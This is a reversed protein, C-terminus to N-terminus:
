PVKKYFNEFTIEAFDFVIYVFLIMSIYEFPEQVNLYMNNIMPQVVFLILASLGIWALSFRLCIIGQFNYKMDKYDWYSKGFYKELLFGSVYEVTTPVLFFFLIMSVKSFELFEYMYVLISVATGYMPKFPISLFGDKKFYGLVFYSFVEELCWGLFSYLTFIFIFYFLWSM